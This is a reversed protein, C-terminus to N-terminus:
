ETKGASVKLGVQMATVLLTARHKQISCYKNECLVNVNDMYVLLQNTGKLKL